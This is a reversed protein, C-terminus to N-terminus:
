ALNKSILNKLPKHLKKRGVELERSITAQSIGYMKSLEQETKGEWYHLFFLIIQVMDMDAKGSLKILVKFERDGLEIDQIMESWTLPFENEDVLEILKQPPYFNINIGSKKKM